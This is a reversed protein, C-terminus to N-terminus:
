KPRPADALKSNQLKMVTKWDGKAQAEAIQTEVTAVGDPRPGQSPDPRPIRPGADAKWHPKRQLLDTLEAEIAAEDIQGDADLFSKGSANLSDVADGADAFRTTAMAKIQASVAQKNAAAARAEAAAVKDALKEADSKAAEEIEALRKAADANAKARTENERSLRKWKEVDAQLDTVTPPAQDTASEPAAGAAPPAPTPPTAPPTTTGAADTVPAAPNAPVTM